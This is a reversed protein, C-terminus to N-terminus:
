FQYNHKVYEALPYTANKPYVIIQNTKEKKEEATKMRPTTLWLPMPNEEPNQCHYVKM